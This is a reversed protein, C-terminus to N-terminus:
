RKRLHRFRYIIAGEQVKVADIRDANEPLSRGLLNYWSKKELQSQQLPVMQKSNSSRTRLSPDIIIEDLISKFRISDRLITTTDSMVTVSYGFGGVETWRSYEGWCISDPMQCYFGILEFARHDGVKKSASTDYSIVKGLSGTITKNVLFNIRAWEFATDESDFTYRSFRLSTFGDASTDKFTCQSDNSSTKEWEKGLEIKFGMLQDEYFVSFTNTSCILIFCIIPKYSRM